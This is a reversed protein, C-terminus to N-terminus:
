SFYLKKLLQLDWNNTLDIFFPSQWKQTTSAIKNLGTVWDPYVRLAMKGKNKGYNLINKEALLKKPFIFQGIKNEDFITVILKDPASYFDYPKNKLEADKEWFVVFYGLKKTTKKGRRSRFSRNALSFTTAEYEKNQEELKIDTLPWDSIKQIISALYDMSKM